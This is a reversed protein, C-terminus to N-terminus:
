HLFKDGADANIRDARDHTQDSSSDRDHDAVALLIQKFRDNSDDIIPTVVAYITTFDLFELGCGIFDDSALGCTPNVDIGGLIEELNVGQELHLNKLANDRRM